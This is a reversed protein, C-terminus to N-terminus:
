SINRYTGENRRRISKIDINKGNDYYIIRYNGIRVRYVHKHKKLKKYDVGMIDHQFIKIIMKSINRHDHKPIKRLLKKIKNM